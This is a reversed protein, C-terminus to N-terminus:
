HIALMPQLEPCVCQYFRTQIGCIIIVYGNPLLGIYPYLNLRNDLLQQLVRPDSLTGRGGGRQFISLHSQHWQLRSRCLLGKKIKNKGLTTWIQFSPHGVYLKNESSRKWATERCRHLNINSSNSNLVSAGFIIFPMCPLVSEQATSQPATFQMLHVHAVAALDGALKM